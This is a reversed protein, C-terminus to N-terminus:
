KLDDPRYGLTYNATSGDPNMYTNVLHKTLPQRFRPRRLTSQRRRRTRAHLARILGTNAGTMVFASNLIEIVVPGYTRPRPLM